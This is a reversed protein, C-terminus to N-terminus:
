MVNITRYFLTGSYICSGSRYLKGTVRNHAHIATRILYDGNTVTVEKEELFVGRWTHFIKLKYKGNKLSSVTIKEGAVDSDSNVVWGFVVEKTKMAMPMAGLCKVDAPTIDTLKSFPIQDTFKRISTIQSNVVNDNIFRSHAWWFPTMASGTALTVWLANHYMALYGQCAPSM